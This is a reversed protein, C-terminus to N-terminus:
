ILNNEWSEESEGVLDDNYPHINKNKKFFYYGILAGLGVSLLIALLITVVEWKNISYVRSSYDEKTDNEGPNRDNQCEASINTPTIKDLYDRVVEWPCLHHSNQISFKGCFPFPTEVGNYILRLFFNPETKLNDEEYLEFQLLSSYRPWNQQSFGFAILISLLGLDHGSYEAFKHFSLNRSISQHYEVDNSNTDKGTNNISFRQKAQMVAIDWRDKWEKLLIGISVRSKKELTPYTGNLATTEAYIFSMKEIFDKELELNEKTLPTEYGHCKHMIMCDWLHDLNESFTGFQRHLIISFNKRQADLQKKKPSVSQEFEESYSRSKACFDYGWIPDLELAQTNFELASLNDIPYMGNILAQLSQIVRPVTDARLYLESNLPTSSLFGSEVYSSRLMKGNETQMEYGKSTLQGPYCNKYPFSDRNDYRQLYARTPSVDSENLLVFGVKLKCDFDTEM